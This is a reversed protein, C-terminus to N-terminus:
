HNFNYISKYLKKYLIHKNQLHLHLFFINKKLCLFFQFILIM